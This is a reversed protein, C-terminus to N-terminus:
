CRLAEAPNKDIPRIGAGRLLVKFLNRSATSIGCFESYDFFTLAVVKDRSDNDLDELFIRVTV